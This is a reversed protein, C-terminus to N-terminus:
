KNKLEDPNSKEFLEYTISPDELKMKIKVNCSAVTAAAEEKKIKEYEKELNTKNSSM